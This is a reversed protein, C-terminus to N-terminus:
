KVGPFLNFKIGVNATLGQDVGTLFKPQSAYVVGFPISLEGVKKTITASFVHRTEEPANERWEWRYSVDVRGDAVGTDSVGVLRGLDAGLSVARGAELLVDLGVAPSVYHYAEQASVEAFLSLRSSAKLNAKTDGAKVFDTYERLCNARDSGCRSRGLVDFFDKLSNSLGRELTIRGSLVNPGFLDDRWTQSATVSLQPMNNILQGFVDLGADTLSKSFTAVLKMESRVMDILVSQIAARTAEPIQVWATQDRNHGNLAEVLRRELAARESAGTVTAMSAAQFVLDNYLRMHRSFNRGLTASTINYSVNLTVHEADKKAGILSKEISDRKDEPLKSRLEDFLQPKTEIIAKLQLSPDQAAKTPTNLAVTVTGTSEGRQADGLLGTLQLLPLFDKVTSSLGNIDQLGTETLKKVDSQAKAASQAKTAVTGTEAAADALLREFCGSVTEAPLCLSQANASTSGLWMWGAAITLGIIRVRM